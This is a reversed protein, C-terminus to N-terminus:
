EEAPHERTRIYYADDKEEIRFPKTSRTWQFIWRRACPMSCDAFNPAEAEMEGLTDYSWDVHLMLFKGIKRRIRRSRNYFREDASIDALIKGGDLAQQVAHTQEEIPGRAQQQRLRDEKKEKERVGERLPASGDPIM